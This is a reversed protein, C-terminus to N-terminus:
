SIQAQLQRFSTSTSYLGAHPYAKFLVSVECVELERQIDYELESYLFDTLGLAKM